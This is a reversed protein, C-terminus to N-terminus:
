FKNIIYTIFIILGLTKFISKFRRNLSFIIILITILHVVIMTVREDENLFNLNQNSIFIKTFIRELLGMFIMFLSAMIINFQKSENINLFLLLNLLNRIITINVYNKMIWESIIYFIDYKQIDSM